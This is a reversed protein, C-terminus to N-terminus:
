CIELQAFVFLNHPFQYLTCGLCPVPVISDGVVVFVPMCDTLILLLYLWCYNGAFPPFIQQLVIVIKCPILSLTACTGGAYRSFLIYNGTISYNRVIKVTCVELYKRFLCHCSKTYIYAHGFLNYWVVILGSITWEQYRFLKNFDYSTSMRQIFSHLRALNQCLWPLHESRIVVVHFTNM